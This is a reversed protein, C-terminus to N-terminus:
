KKIFTFNIIKKTVFIIDLEVKKIFAKFLIFKM